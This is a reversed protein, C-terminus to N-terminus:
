TTPLPAPTAGELTSSHYVEPWRNDTVTSLRASRAIFYDMHADPWETMLHERRICLSEPPGEHRVTHAGRTASAASVHGAAFVDKAARSTFHEWRGNPWAFHESAGLRRRLLEAASYVEETAEAPTLEAVTRHTVTHNGIEHGLTLLEELDGWTMAVEDCGRTFGFFRRAAATSSTDVFGTPIYFMGSIGHEALIRGVQLNSAFGDDFSFSAIPHDIPGEQVLRVAESHSVVRHTAAVRQVLRRFSDMEQAPVAHLYLFHVRPLSWAEEIEGNLRAKTSLADLTAKRGVKRLASTPKMLANM